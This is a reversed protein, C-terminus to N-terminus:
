CMAGCSVFSPCSTLKIYSLKFDQSMIIIVTLQNATNKANSGSLIDQWQIICLLACLTKCYLTLKCMQIITIQKIFM